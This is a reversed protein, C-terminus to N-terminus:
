TLASLELMGYWEFTIASLYFTHPVGSMDCSIHRERDREREREREREGEGERERERVCVCVPSIVSRGDTLQVKM